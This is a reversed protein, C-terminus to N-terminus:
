KRLTASETTSKYPKFPLYLRGRAPRSKIPKHFSFRYLRFIINRNALCESLGRFLLHTYSVSIMSVRRSWFDMPNLASTCALSSYLTPSTNFSDRICMKLIEEKTYYRELQVAIVWEIPKQLLREMVNDATYIFSMM